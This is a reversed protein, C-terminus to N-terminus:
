AKAETAGTAQFMSKEVRDVPCEKEEKLVHDFTMEGSFGEKEHWRGAGAKPLELGALRFYGRRGQGLILPDDTLEVGVRRWHISPLIQLCRHNDSSPFLLGVQMPYTSALSAALCRVICLVAWGAAGRGGCGAAFFLRAGYTSLASPQSLPPIQELGVALDLFSRQSVEELSVKPLAHHSVGTIGASQSALAPLDSSTLLEIGAQGVHHFGIEGAANRGLTLSPAYILAEAADKHWLSGSLVGSDGENEWLSPAVSGPELTKSLAMGVSARGSGPNFCKAQLGLVKSASAPPDSSALPGLSAQGVHHFGREALFVFILRPHHRTGTTGAVLLSLCSFRKFGPPPPQLSGLNRWQVGAQTVSPSEMTIKCLRLGHNKVQLHHPRFATLSGPSGLRQTRFGSEGFLVCPRLARPNGHDTKSSHHVPCSTIGSYFVCSRWSGAGPDGLGQLASTVLKLVIQFATLPSTFVFPCRAGRPLPTLSLGPRLLVARRGPLSAVPGSRLLETAGAKRVGRPAVGLRSEGGGPVLTMPQPSQLPALPSQLFRLTGVYDRETGLIENLVCLRLRLQRESERAAACQGSSPAAAGPNRPDPHAGDGAGDGGPESGSPAEM